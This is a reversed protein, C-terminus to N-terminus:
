PDALTTMLWSHIAPNGAVISGSRVVDPSGELNTVIGGAERILLTGAAVDWPALRLEWFGDFRGAAVDALDLAASGPRRIGATGTAVAEMQRHYTQWQPMISFPFGTGILAHGPETLRSVGIPAGNQFAGGGKAATYRIDLPVHHVIGALLEGDLAAAISVAYMPFRHLYNTTGDLPDVIWVLRGAAPPLPGSAAPQLPSLEEGLITADPTAELLVASIIRESERDVETVFDAKGKKSWDRETMRGEQERLFRAARDSALGAADLLQVPDRKVQKAEPRNTGEELEHWADEASDLRRAFQVDAVVEAGHLVPDRELVLELANEADDVQM